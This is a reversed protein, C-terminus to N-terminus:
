LCVQRALDTAEQQTMTHPPLATGLGLIQVSMHDVGKRFQGPVTAALVIRRGGGQYLMSLPHPGIPHPM